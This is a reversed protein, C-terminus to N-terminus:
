KTEPNSICQSSRSEFAEVMERWERSVLETLDSKIEEKVAKCLNTGWLSLKEEFGQDKYVAFM